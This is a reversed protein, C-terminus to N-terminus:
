HAVIDTVPVPIGKPLGLQVIFKLISLEKNKKSTLPAISDKSEAQAKAALKAEENEAKKMMEADYIQRHNARMHTTLTSTSGRWVLDHHCIKCNATGSENEYVNFHDHAWSSVGKARRLKGRKDRDASRSQAAMLVSIM